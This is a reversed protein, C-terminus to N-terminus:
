IKVKRFNSDIPQLKISLKETSLKLTSRKFEELDIKLAALDDVLYDIQSSYNADSLLFEHKIWHYDKELSEAWLYAIQQNHKKVRGDIDTINKISEIQANLSERISKM